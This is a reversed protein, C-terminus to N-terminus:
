AVRQRISMEKRNKLQLTTSMTFSGHELAEHFLVVGNRFTLAGALNGARRSHGDPLIALADSERLRAVGVDLLEARSDAHGGNTGDTAAEGLLNSVVGRQCFAALLHDHECGGFIRFSKEVALHRGGGDHGFNLLNLLLSAQHGSEDLVVLGRTRGHHGESAPDRQSGHSGEDDDQDAADDKRIALVGALILRVRQNHFAPIHSSIPREEGRTIILRSKETLRSNRSLKKTFNKKIFFCGQKRKIDM